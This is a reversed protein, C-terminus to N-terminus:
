SGVEVGQGALGLSGIPTAKGTNSDLQVLLKLTDSVAYLVGNRALSLGTVDNVADRGISGNNGIKTAKQTGIDIRYLADFAEGYALPSADAHSAGLCLVAAILCFLARMTELKDNYYYDDAM